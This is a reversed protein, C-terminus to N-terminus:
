SRANGSLNARLSLALQRPKTLIGLGTVLCAAGSVTMVTDFADAYNVGGWTHTAGM